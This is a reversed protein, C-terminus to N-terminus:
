GTQTEGNAAVVDFDIGAINVTSGVGTLFIAATPACAVRITVAVSDVIGRLVVHRPLWHFPFPPNGTDGLSLEGVAIQATTNASGLSYLSGDDSPYDWTSPLGIFASLSSM